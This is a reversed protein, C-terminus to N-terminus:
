PYITIDSSTYTGTGQCSHFRIYNSRTRNPSVLNKNYKLQYCLWGQYKNIATKCVNKFNGRISSQKVFSLKSEHRMCWSRLLPGHQLIQSPYHLMYHMKPTINVDPYLLKFLALKEEILGRLYCIMDKSCTPALAIKCIKILLLLSKWRKDDLPVKDGVIIPLEIILTMMQSASQRIRGTSEIPSPRNHPFDYRTMRSNLLAIPFFRSEVCHTLFLQLETAVVGEFLDHM